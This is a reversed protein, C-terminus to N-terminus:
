ASSGETPRYEELPLTIEVYEDVVGHDAMQRMEDKQAAVHMGLNVISGDDLQVHPLVYLEAGEPDVLGAPRLHEPGYLWGIEVREGRETVSWVVDLPEGLWQVVFSRVNFGDVDDPCSVLQEQLVEQRADDFAMLKMLIGVDEPYPRATIPEPEGQGAELLEWPDAVAM